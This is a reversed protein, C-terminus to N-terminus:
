EEIIVRIGKRALKNIQRVVERGTYIKGQLRIYAGRGHYGIVKGKVTKTMM